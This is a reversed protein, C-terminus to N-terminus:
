ADRTVEFRGALEAAVFARQMIGGMDNTSIGPLLDPLGDRIEDFSKANMVLTKVKDIMGSMIGSMDDDLRNAMEEPLQNAQKAARDAESFGPPIDIGGQSAKMIGPTKPPTKVLDENKEPKPVGYTEYFYNQAIPLGIDVVLTKDIASREKLDPKKNAFTKITPYKKVDPFNYDVIWRIVSKDLCSDLLGADTEVLEQRVEEQQQENGLKGPTGETSATQGLVRKSVAKDMYECMKEYSVTGTRAAELLEIVMDEPVVVGTESHILKIVELLKGQDEEGTGAPYKGVGTPMGFKDLFTLWFKIGNKKFWVPWWISQGLGQGYPNDTDGFTFCIFKKEPLQDGEYMNNITLLRLEREPTFCFRRAHKGIFKDIIITGNDKDYDWMVESCYYGYLTGKLLEMRAEDFNSARLIQEVCAAIEEDLPTSIPQGDQLGNQASIISWDKGVISLARTQLVSGAHPDRAIDDYMRLGKGHSESNLVPDPNYLRTNSIFGAFLDFDKRTTAIEQKEPRKKIRSAPKKTIKAM